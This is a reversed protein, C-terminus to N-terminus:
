KGRPHKANIGFECGSTSLQVDMVFDGHGLVAHKDEVKSQVMVQSQRVVQDVDSFGIIYVSSLKLKLWRHRLIYCLM